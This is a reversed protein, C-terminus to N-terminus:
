RDSSDPVVGYYILDARKDWVFDKSALARLVQEPIQGSPPVPFAAGRLRNGEIRGNGATPPPLGGPQAPEMGWISLWGDESHLQVSPWLYPADSLWAAALSFTSVSCVLLDAMALALLDSVDTYKEGM